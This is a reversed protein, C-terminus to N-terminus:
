NVLCAYSLTASQSSALTGLAIGAGTLDGITFTGVPVGNGSISVPGAVPCTIGAGPADQVVAGTAAAPGSNTITLTYSTTSGSMVTGTGNSKTVVFDALPAGIVTVKITGVDCSAPNASDCLQYDFGYEGPATGAVVGVGGTSVDFTLGAPVTAAPALALRANFATAAAGNITDGTFANLVNDAGTLGEIGAVSDDSAAIAPPAAVMTAISGTALTPVQTSNVRAVSTISNGLVGNTMVDFEIVGGAGSALSSITTFSFTGSSPLVAPIINPGSTVSFNATGTAQAPLIDSLAVNTQAGAYANAYTFRYRVTAGPPVSTGNYPAGNVAIISNEIILTASGLRLNSVAGVWYRWPNDNSAKLGQASDGGHGEWNVIRDSAANNIKLRVKAYKTEGIYVGGLAFRLANTSAQLPTADGLLWGAGTVTCVDVSNIPLAAQPVVSGAGNAPGETGAITPDNSLCSGPYSIRNWPGVTGYRDWQMGSDPGAVPSGSNFPTVGRGAVNIKTEEAISFGNASPTVATGFANVQVADWKNHIRPIGTGGVGLWPASNSPNILYGNTLTGITGGGAFFGTDARTSYFIGTDGYIYALGANCNAATFGAATCAATSAPNWGNVGTVFTKQGIPGWGRSTGEGNVAVAKNAPISAGTSNVIWAGAIQTGSPTYFTVYGGPGTDTGNTQVPFAVLYEVFDGDKFGGIGADANAQLVAIAEPSLEHQGTNLWGGHASAAGPLLGCALLLASSCIYSFQGVFATLTKKIQIGVNKSWNSLYQNQLWTIPNFFNLLKPDFDYNLGFHILKSVTFLQINQSIRLPRIKL